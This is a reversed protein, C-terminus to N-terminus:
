VRVQVCFLFEAEFQVVGKRVNKKKLSKLKYYSNIQKCYPSLTEWVSVEHVFEIFKM